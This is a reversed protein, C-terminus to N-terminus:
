GPFIFHNYILSFQKPQGLLSIVDKDRLQKAELGDGANLLLTSLSSFRVFSQIERASLEKKSTVFQKGDVFFIYPTTLCNEGEARDIGNSSLPEKKDAM